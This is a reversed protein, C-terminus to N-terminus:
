GGGEVEGGVWDEVGDLAGEEGGCEAGGGEDGGEVSDIGVAGAGRGGM